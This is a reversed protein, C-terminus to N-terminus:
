SKSKSLIDNNLALLFNADYSSKGQADFVIKEISPVLDPHKNCFHNIVEIITQKTDQM